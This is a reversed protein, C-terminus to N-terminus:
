AEWRTALFCQVGAVALVVLASDVVDGGVWRWLVYLTASVWVGLCAACTLLTYVYTRLAGRSAPVIYDGDPGTAPDGSEDDWAWRYLRERPVETLSDRTFLRTVRYSGTALVVLWWWSPM